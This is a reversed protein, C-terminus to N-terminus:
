FGVNKQLADDVEQFSGSCVNGVLTFGCREEIISFLAEPVSKDTNLVQLPSNALTIQEYIHPHRQLHGRQMVATRAFPVGLPPTPFM